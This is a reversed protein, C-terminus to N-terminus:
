PKRQRLHGRQATELDVMGDAYCAHINGEKRLARPTSQIAAMWWEVFDDEDPPGATSRIWLLVEYWIARSFPRGTYSSTAHDGRVSQVAPCRPPHQLGQRALRDGTWCRDKCAFGSSSSLGQPCEPARTLSGLDQYSPGKLSSDTAVNPHISRTPRGFGFSSTQGQWSSYMVCQLGSSYTNGYPWCAPRARLIPL